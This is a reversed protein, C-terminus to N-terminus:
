QADRPLSSREKPFSVKPERRVPVVKWGKLDLLSPNAPSEAAARQHGQCQQNKHEGIGEEGASDGPCNRHLPFEASRWSLLELTKSLTLTTQFGGAM